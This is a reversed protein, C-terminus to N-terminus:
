AAAFTKSRYDQDHAIMAWAVRAMKNAVAVAALKRPKTALLRAIWPDAQARKSLLLAQAGNILLRRLYRDGRKSIRGLRPKGGTAEVKPTLGLSAAFDRGTRFAKPDTLGAAIASSVIVGFGPAAELRRSDRDQRHWALIEAEIARIARQVGTLPEAMARLASALFGPVPLDDGALQEMLAAFGKVGTPAVVGYEALHGRLANMLRTRQGILLARTKHMSLVAQREPTKVAVFRMGPRAVAECIAAADVADTKNRRVYPKVYAPPILRVQHGLAALERAWYHASGCAEMGVLCPPLKAFFALVQARRLKRTIVVEGAADVGHVQFVSKALDLGITTVQMRIAEKLNLM